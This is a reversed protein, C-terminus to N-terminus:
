EGCSEAQGTALDIERAVMGAGAQLVVNMAAEAGADLSEGRGLGVLLGNAVRLKKKLAAVGLELAGEGCAHHGGGFGLLEFGGRAQAVLEGGHVLELFLLADGRRLVVVVGVDKAVVKFVAAQGDIEEVHAVAFDDVAAFEEPFIQGLRSSALPYM